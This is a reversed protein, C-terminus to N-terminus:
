DLHLNLDPGAHRGLLEMKDLDVSLPLQLTSKSGDMARARHYVTQCPLGSDAQVWKGQFLTTSSM